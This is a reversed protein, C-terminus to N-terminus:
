SATSVASSNPVAPTARVLLVPVSSERVVSEAVSGLFWRAPGGRGHTVMVFLDGPQAAALLEAAAPGQRCEMTVTGHRNLVDQDVRELYQLAAVREDELVRPM